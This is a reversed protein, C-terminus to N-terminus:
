RNMLIEFRDEVLLAQGDAQVKWVERTIIGFAKNMRWGSSIIGTTEDVIELKPLIYTVDAFGTAIINQWFGEIETRGTFTGFPKAEMVADETYQRAASNADGINFAGIWATSAATVAKEVRAVQNEDLNSGESVVVLLDDARVGLPLTLVLAVLAVRAWNEFHGLM